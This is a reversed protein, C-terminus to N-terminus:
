RKLVGAEITNDRGPRQAADGIDDTSEPVYLPHEFRTPTVYEEFMATTVVWAQCPPLIDVIRQVFIEGTAAVNVAGDVRENHLATHLDGLEVTEGHRAHWAQEAAHISAYRM